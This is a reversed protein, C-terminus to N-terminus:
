FPRVWGRFRFTERFTTDLPGPRKEGLDVFRPFSSWGWGKVRAVLGHKRPNWHISDVCRKLDDEDRVTNSGPGNRGCAVRGTGRGHNPSIGSAARALVASPM